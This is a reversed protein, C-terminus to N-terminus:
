QFRSPPYISTRLRPQRQLPDPDRCLSIPYWQRFRTLLMGYPHSVTHTWVLDTPRSSSVWPIVWEYSYFGFRQILGRRNVTRRTGAWDDHVSAGSPGGLGGFVTHFTLLRTWYNKLAALERLIIRAIAHPLGGVGQADQGWHGLLVLAEGYTARSTWNRPKYPVIATSM